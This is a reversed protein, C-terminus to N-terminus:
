HSIMRKKGIARWSASNYSLDSCFPNSGQSHDRTFTEYSFTIFHFFRLMVANLIIPEWQVNVKAILHIIQSFNNAFIYIFFYLWEM